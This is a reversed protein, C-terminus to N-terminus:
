EHFIINGKVFMLFNFRFFKEKEQTAEKTGWVVFFNKKEKESKSNKKISFKTEYVVIVIFLSYHRVFRSKEVCNETIYEATKGHRFQRPSFPTLFLM